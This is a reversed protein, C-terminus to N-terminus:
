VTGLASIFDRAISVNTSDQVIGILDNGYWIATDNYASSGIGYNDYSLSYQYISGSVEILDHEWNWDTITAYGGQYYDNGSYSVGWSGGLVFYDKGGGGTLTDYETGSSAYGDLRDIGAGGDLYDNGGMGLLTDDGDYGNLTDNGVEGNLYDNGYGGLIYDNGYGGYMTDSAYTYSGSNGGDIYDDGYGGDIYDAGEGGYISDDGDYGYMNDAVNTGYLSSRYLYDPYGNYTSNDSYNTGYIDAM